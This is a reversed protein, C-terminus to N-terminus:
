HIIKDSVQRNSQSKHCPVCGSTLKSVAVQAKNRSELEM